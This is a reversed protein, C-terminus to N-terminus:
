SPKAEKLLRQNAVKGELVTPLPTLLWKRFTEYQRKEENTERGDIHRELAEAMLENQTKQRDSLEGDLGRRKYVQVDRNM